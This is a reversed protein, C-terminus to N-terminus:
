NRSAGSQLQKRVSEAESKLARRLRPNRTGACTEELMELRGQLISERTRPAVPLPMEVRELPRGFGQKRIIGIFAGLLEGERSASRLRSAPELHYEGGIRALVLPDAFLDRAGDVLVHDGPRLGAKELRTTRVLFARITSRRRTAEATAAPALAIEQLDDALALLGVLKLSRAHGKGVKVPEFQTGWRLAAEGM